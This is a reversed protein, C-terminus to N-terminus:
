LALEKHGHAGDIYDGYNPQGKSQVQNKYDGWSNLGGIKEPSKSTPPPERTSFPAPVSPIIEQLPRGTSFIVISKYRNAGM